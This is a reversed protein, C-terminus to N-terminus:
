RGLLARVDALGPQQGAFRGLLEEVSCLCARIIATKPRPSDLQVTMSKLDAMLESLTDDDLGLSGAQSKLGDVVQEVTRCPAPELVRADGLQPLATLGGSAGTAERVAEAGEPSIGIGGSLTRIQALELGILAQAAQSAAERDMGLREGVAYMSVQREPEGATQEYLQLLFERAPGILDDLPM